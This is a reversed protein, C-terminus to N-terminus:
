LGRNRAMKPWFIYKQKLPRFHEKPDVSVQDRTEHHNPFAFSWNKIELLPFSFRVELLHLSTRLNMCNFPRSSYLPRDVTMLLNSFTVEENVTSILVHQMIYFQLIFVFYLFIDMRLRGHQNCYWLYDIDDDKEGCLYSSQLVSRSFKTIFVNAISTVDISSM